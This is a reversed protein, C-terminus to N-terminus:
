IIRNLLYLIEGEKTLPIIHDRYFQLIIDPNITTRIATNVKAQAYALKEKVRLIIRDEVEKRTLLNMLAEKNKEKILQSYTEFNSQIKSEAVFFSGFHIRECIAQFAYVDAVVSSGYQKDDGDPCIEMVLNLYSKMIQATLNIQNYDSIYLEPAATSVRRKPEPLNKNFPREEPQSYRGFQADMEEQFLLRIEFLSKGEAGVFGSNGPQYIVPNLKFQVRDILKSIITEELSELHAVIINLDM